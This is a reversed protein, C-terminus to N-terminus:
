LDQGFYDLLKVLGLVLLVGLKNQPDLGGHEMLNRGMGDVTLLLSLHGVEVPLTTSEDKGLVLLLHVLYLLRHDPDQLLNCEDVPEPVEILLPEHDVVCPVELCGAPLDDLYVGPVVSRRGSDFRVQSHMEVVKEHQPFELVVVLDVRYSM